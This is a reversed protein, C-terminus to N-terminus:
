GRVIDAAIKGIERDLGDVIQGKVLKLAGKALGAKTRTVFWHSRNGFLPHRVVGRELAPLQRGKPGGTPASLHATVGPNGAFSVSTRVELDKVLVPAYGSPMYVPALEKVKPLYVKTVVRGAASVIRRQIRAGERRLAMATESVNAVRIDLTVAM